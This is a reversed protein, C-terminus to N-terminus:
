ASDAWTLVEPTTSEVAQRGLQDAEAWRPLLELPPDVRLDLNGGVGPELAQLFRQRAAPSLVEFGERLAPLRRLFGTDDLAAVREILRDTVAPAAELLSAAMALAGTMRGALAAQAAPDGAADVWAGMREGFAEAHTHGLVVRVAGGAGQMLPSGDIEMRELVWRLRGDGLQATGSEDRAVRQVLALLAHADELRNSGTLGEVQRLAAAALTPLIRTSLRDRQAASPEFGPVHGRGIRDCLELAEVLEPLSAQHPLAKELDDLQEEVLVALGCEAAADLTRLRLRPTLADRARAEALGARLSGEAAQALTVGRHGTLELVASTTPTWRVTWLGTLRDSDTSIPQAYPVRCTLLRQIAIHRRRDLPSRLPDLRIEIPLADRPGPLRLEAILDEVHPGLGSRPTGAGLRGRRSGVLVRQMAAAVARGRGLPEGQALASHLAEVLERRGPAPLNRLRALDAALRIAERADPVGATHGSRRLERCVRLVALSATRQAAEPSAQGQWVGQQWEPDRIGAPYGTRSDLLEFAYPVLSTVVIAPKLERVRAPEPDASALL